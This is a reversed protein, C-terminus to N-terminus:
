QVIIKRKFDFWKGDGPQANGTPNMLIMSSWAPLSINGTYSVGAVDKYTYNGLAVTSSSNTPNYYFSINNVNTVAAYAKNSHIDKGTFAQWNSLSRYVDPASPQNTKFTLNDDIPRTYYNSDAVGFTPIWNGDSDFNMVYQNAAKAFFINGIITDNYINNATNSSQLYISYLSNYVTNYKVRNKFAKHLQIGGKGCNAIVNNTVWVKSSYEDLYIGEARTTINTGSINGVANLIVNHDIVRVNTSSDTTYIGGGDDLVLCVSDIYNYQVTKAGLHNIYVGNYGCNKIVNYQITAPGGEDQLIASTYNGDFCQGAIYDIYRIDNNSIVETNGDTFVGNRNCWSITNGTITNNNCQYQFNIGARGAFTITNNKITCGNNDYSFDLADELSGIFSLGDITIYDNQGSNSVLNNLTAVKVIKTTPNVAGFYMYFKKSAAATDHHWEGYTTLTRLDSQIWFGFNDTANHNPAAISTYSLTNVSHGTIRVRDLTFPDKRIVAEAGTWNATGVPVSASTISTNTSHSTYTYYSADPTRGMGYQVGDITVMNTKNESTIVKSYIGNGENTWGSLTTFGTIIPQAGAGYSTLTIPSTSNGSKTINLTGYWTDGKRFFVTDGANFSTFYSNFKAVTKWANASDIGSNSDNGTSFCFYRNGSVPNLLILSSYAPLSVNGTYSVGAVNKYVYNGLALTIPSNTSNYEFRIQSISSVPAYTKLTHADQSSLTKWTDLSYYSYASGTYAESIGGGPYNYYGSSYGTTNIGQPEYIPRCYYNSDITGITSLYNSAIEVALALSNTDKGVLINHKFVSGSNNPFSFTYGAVRSNYVSNNTASVNVSAGLSFGVGSNFVTNSDIVVNHTGGDMYIGAVDTLNPITVDEGLGYRDDYGNSTINKIVKRGTKSVDGWTYIAGGDSKILCFSDIWNNRIVVSDDQFQIGLYGVKRIVNYQFLLKSGMYTLGNYHGDGSHGAGRIMGINYFYNNLMTWSTSHGGTVANCMCNSFTCNNLQNNNASSHCWIGDAGMMDIDCNNINVHNTLSFNFGKSNAGTFKINDFTIYTASSLDVLTDVTSAKIVYSAPSAGGFYMKIKKNTSDYAWEGLVTCANVHNQFFFGHGDIPAYPAGGDEPEPFSWYTVTTSTQASIRGRDLIWPYKRVVVEGGVFSAAGSIANSTIATTGTHTQHDLYGENAAYVKPYRGMVQLTDQFTVMNLAKRFLANNSEYIGGGISTWSTINTFGTIVPKAGTGYAGIIIPSGSNGSRSIIMAGYFTDGRKFLLSDGPSRSAFVSNFKSITQWPTSTSTGNNTVDNGTSSFYYNTARAFVPLFSLILLTKKM